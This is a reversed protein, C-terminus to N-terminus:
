NFCQGNKNQFYKLISINQVFNSSALIRVSSAGNGINVSVPEHIITKKQINLLLAFLLINGHVEVRGSGAVTGQTNRFM